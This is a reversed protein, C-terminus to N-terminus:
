GRMTLGHRLAEPNENGRRLRPKEFYQGANGFAEKIEPPAELAERVAVWGVIQGMDLFWAYSVQQADSPPVYDEPFSITSHIQVEVKLEWAIDGQSPVHCGELDVSQVFHPLDECSHAQGISCSDSSVEISYDLGPSPCWPEPPDSLEVRWLPL